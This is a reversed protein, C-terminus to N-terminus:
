FAYGISLFLKYTPEKQEVTRGDIPVVKRTAEDFMLLPADITRPHLVRGYEFRLPGVPTLYRVGFGVTQRLGRDGEFDLHFTGDGWM